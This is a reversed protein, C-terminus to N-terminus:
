FERRRRRAEEIGGEVVVLGARTAGPATGGDGVRMLTVNTRPIQRPVSTGSTKRPEISTAEINMRTSDRRANWMARWRERRDNMEGARMAVFRLISAAACWRSEIM